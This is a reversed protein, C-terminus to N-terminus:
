QSKELQDSTYEVGRKNSLIRASRSAWIKILQKLEQQDKDGTFPHENDEIDFPVRQSLRLVPKGSDSDRYGCEITLASGSVISPERKLLLQTLTGVEEIRRDYSLKIDLILAKKGKLEKLSKLKQEQEVVPLVKNIQASFEKGLDSAIGSLTDEDAPKEHINGDTDIRKVVMGRVDIGYIYLGSYNKFDTGPVLVKEEFGVQSEDAFACSSAILLISVIFILKKM